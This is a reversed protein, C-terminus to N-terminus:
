LAVFKPQSSMNMLMVDCEDIDLPSFSLPLSVSSSPAFFSDAFNHWDRDVISVDDESNTVYNDDNAACVSSNQIQLNPITTSDKPTDIMFQSQVEQQSLDFVFPMSYFNPESKPNSSAKYGTGKIKIRQMRTLLLSRGRLFLEHYYAGKDDGHTLREFGYLNLQRQFSTLKSQRFFKPLVEAVFLKPKRIVFARGHPQWGIVDSMVSNEASIVDLMHYLRYPFTDHHHENVANLPEVENSMDHYNHQVYHRINNSATLKFTRDNSRPVM